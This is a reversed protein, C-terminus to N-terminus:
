HHFLIWRDSRYLCYSISWSPSLDNLKHSSVILYRDKNEVFYINLFICVTTYIGRNWSSVTTAFCDSGCSLFPSSIRLSLWMARSNGIFPQLNIAKRYSLLFSHQQPIHSCTHTQEKSGQTAQSPTTVRRNRERHSHCVSAM